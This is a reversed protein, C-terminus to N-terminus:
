KGSSPAPGTSRSQGTGLAAQGLAGGLQALLAFPWNVQQATNQTAANNVNQNQQQQASGIGYLGQGAQQAIGLLNNTPAYLTNIANTMDNAANLQLGSNFQSNQQLGQAAALQSQMSQLEAPVALSSGLTALSQGLGQQALGQAQNFGSSNFAGAQQFEAMLAPNTALSYQSILPNALNNFQSQIAANAQNQGGQALSQLTANPASNLAGMSAANIIGAMNNAYSQANPTVNQASAYANPYANGLLQMGQNQWPSFPAITQDLGYNYGQLGQNVYQNVNALFGQAYPQVWAPMSTQTTSTAQQTGGGGM